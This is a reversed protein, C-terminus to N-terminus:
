EQYMKKKLCPASYRIFIKGNENVVLYYLFVDHLGLLAVQM